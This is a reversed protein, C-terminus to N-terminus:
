PRVLTEACAHRSHVEAWWGLQCPRAIPVTNAQPKPTYGQSHFSGEEGKQVQWWGWGQLMEPDQHTLGEAVSGKGGVSM